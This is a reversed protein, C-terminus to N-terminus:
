RHYCQSSSTKQNGSPVPTFSNYHMPIANKVKLLKLAEVAGDVDMTYHGGILASGTSNWSFALFNPM